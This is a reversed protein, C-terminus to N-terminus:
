KSLQDLHELLAQISPRDSPDQGVYSLKVNGLKDLIFTSPYALQAAIDLERTAALDQDLLIPFRIEKKNAVALGAKKFNPLQEASGPYVLLVEADRKQFEDYNSILRSTQTTCYPCIRGSFGRTFVILLNKKHLYDSIAVPTGRTDVFQLKQVQGDDERNSVVDDNFVVGDFDQQTMGLFPDFPKDPLPNTVKRVLWGGLVLCGALGLIISWRKVLIM